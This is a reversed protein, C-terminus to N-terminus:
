FYGWKRDLAPMAIFGSSELSWAKAGGGVGSICLNPDSLHSVFLVCCQLQRHALSPGACNWWMGTEKGTATAPVWWEEDHVRFSDRGEGGASGRLVGWGSDLAVLKTWDM